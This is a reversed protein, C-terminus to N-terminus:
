IIQLHLCGKDADQSESYTSISSRTCKLSTILSIVIQPSPRQGFNQITYRNEKEDQSDDDPYNKTEHNWSAHVSSALGKIWVEVLVHPVEPVKQHSGQGYNRGGYDGCYSHQKSKKCALQGFLFTASTKSQSWAGSSLALRQRAKGRFM